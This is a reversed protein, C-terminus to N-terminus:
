PVAIQMTGLKDTFRNIKIVMTWLWTAMNSQKNFNIDSIYLSHIVLKLLFAMGEVDQTISCYLIDWAIHVRNQQTQKTTTICDNM